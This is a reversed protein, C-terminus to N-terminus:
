YVFLYITVMEGGKDVMNYRFKDREENVNSKKNKIHINSIKNNKKIFNDKKKLKFNNILEKFTKIFCAFNKKNKVGNM